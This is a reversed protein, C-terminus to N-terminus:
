GVCPVNVFTQQFHDNRIKGGCCNNSVSRLSVGEVAELSPELGTKISPLLIVHQLGKSSLDSAIEKIKLLM